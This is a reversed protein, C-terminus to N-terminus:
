ARMVQTAWPSPILLATLAAGKSTRPPGYPRGKSLSLTAGMPCSLAVGLPTSPRCELAARIVPARRLRAGRRTRPVIPVTPYRAQWCPWPM